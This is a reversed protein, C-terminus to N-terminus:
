DIMMNQQNKKRNQRAARCGSRHLVFGINPLMGSEVTPHEVFQTARPTCLSRRVHLMCAPALLHLRVKNASKKTLQTTYVNLLVCRAFCEETDQALHRQRAFRERQDEGVTNM